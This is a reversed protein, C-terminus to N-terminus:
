GGEQVHEGCFKKEKKVRKERRRAGQIKKEERKCSKEKSSRDRKGRLRAGHTM